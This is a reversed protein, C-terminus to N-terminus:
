VVLVRGARRAAAPALSGLDEVQDGDVLKMTGGVERVLVQSLKGLIARQVPRHDDRECPGRIGAQPPAGVLEERPSAM